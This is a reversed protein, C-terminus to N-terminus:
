NKNEYTVDTLYKKFDGARNLYTEDISNDENTKANSKKQDLPNRRFLYRAIGDVNYNNMIPFYNSKNSNIYKRENENKNDSNENYDYTNWKHKPRLSPSIIRCLDIFWVCFESFLVGEIGISSKASDALILKQDARWILFLEKAEIQQEPSVVKSNPQFTGWIWDLLDCVESTLLFSSSMEKFDFIEGEDGRDFAEAGIEYRRLMIELAIQPNTTIEHSSVYQRARRSMKHNTKRHVIPDPIILDFFPGEVGVLPHPINLLARFFLSDNEDVSSGDSQRMSLIIAPIRNRTKPIIFSDSNSQKLFSRSQRTKSIKTEDSSVTRSPVYDEVDMVFEKPSIYGHLASIKNMDGWMLMTKREQERTGEVSDGSFYEHAEFLNVGIFSIIRGGRLFIQSSLSGMTLNRGRPSRMRLFERATASRKARAVRDRKLSPTYIFVIYIIYVVISGYLVVIAAPSINLLKTNMLLFALWTSSITVDLFQDLFFESVAAICTAIILIYFIISGLTFNRHMRCRDIDSDTMHRLIAASPLHSLGSMRAARCSPSFHQVISVDDVVHAGDQVLSLACDNIVRKIVQLQPKVSLIAFIYLIFIKMVEYVCLEQVSATMYDTGWDNLTEGANAVGWAFIWYIYFMDAMTVLSWSFIWIPLSISEPPVGEIDQLCRRLSFRYFLGVNEIVFKRMLAIDRLSNDAVEMKEVITCIHDAKVRAAAIKKELLDQRDKNFLRQRITIPKMTGDINMMLEESIAKMATLHEPSLGIVKKHMEGPSIGSTNMNTAIFKKVYVMLMDIEEEPSSLNEYLKAAIFDRDDDAIEITGDLSETGEEPAVEDKRALMENNIASALPSKDSERKHYVSGLWSNSSFGWQELAPRKSAYEEQIFGIICDLPIM